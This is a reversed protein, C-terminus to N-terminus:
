LQGGTRRKSTDRSSELLRDPRNTIIADVGMKIMKIFAKNSDPTWVAVCLGLQHAEQVQKAKIQTYKPAWWSGGAAHITQPISGGHEGIDFGATWDSGWPNLFSAAKFQKTESSLYITPITPAIKQIHILSRWDFSLVSVRETFQLDKLLAVVHEAVSEPPPTKNPSEPSTKIEIWLKVDSNRANRILLIVERLLPIAEGDSPVQQPYKSAYLTGPKLRGVDYEQLQKVTMDMIPKTSQSPLWSGDSRRTIEPKLSYDHHVVLKKDATMLVDIEIADAGLELAMVLSSITNEPRLGAAGRHGVIWVQELRHSGLKRCNPDAHVACVISLIIAALLCSTSFSRFNFPSRM